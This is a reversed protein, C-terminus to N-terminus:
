LMHHRKPPQDDKENAQKKNKPFTNYAFFVCVGIALVALIGVGHVYTDNSRAAYFSTSPTSNGTSTSTSPRSNGISSSTSPISNDTPSAVLINIEYIYAHM